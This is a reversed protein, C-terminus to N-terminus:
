LLELALKEPILGQIILHNLEKLFEIIKTTEEMVLEM